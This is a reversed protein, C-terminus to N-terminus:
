ERKDEPIFEEPIQFERCILGIKPIVEGFAMGKRQRGSRRKGKDEEAKEAAKKMAMEETMIDEKGVSSGRKKKPKMVTISHESQADEENKKRKRKLPLPEVDEEEEPEHKKEVMGRRMKTEADRWTRVRKLVGELLAIRRERRGEWDWEEGDKLGDREAAAPAVIKRWDESRLISLQRDLLSSEYDIKERERNRLRIETIETRRHPKIYLSDPLPDVTPVPVIPLPRITVQAAAITRPRVHTPSTNPDPITTPNFPEYRTTPTTPITDDVLIVKHSNEFSPRDINISPSPFVIL